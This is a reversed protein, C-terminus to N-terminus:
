KRSSILLSFKLVTLVYPNIYYFLFSEWPKLDLNEVSIIWCSRFVEIVEFLSGKNLGLRRFSESLGLFKSEYLSFFLCEIIICFFWDFSSSFPM